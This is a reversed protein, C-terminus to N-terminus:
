LTAWTAGGDPSTFLSGDAGGAYFRQPDGPDIAIGTLLVSTQAVDWDKGGSTTLFLGNETAAVVVDASSASAAISYLQGTGSRVSVFTVGHDPSAAIGLEPSGALVTGDASVALGTLFHTDAWGSRHEWHAGRDASALIGKGVAYVYLQNPNSPDVAFGHVDLGAVDPALAAWTGGSDRSVQVGIGHGAAYALGDPAMAVQLVDGKPAGPLPQAVGGARVVDIGAHKAVLIPGSGGRTAMAHVHNVNPQTPALGSPEPSPSAPAPVVITGQQQTPSDFWSCGTLGTVLVLAALPEWSKVRELTAAGPSASRSPWLFLTPM